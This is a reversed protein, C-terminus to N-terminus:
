YAYLFKGAHQLWIREVDHLFGKKWNRARASIANTIPKQLIRDEALFGFCFYFTLETYSNLRSNGRFFTLFTRMRAAL